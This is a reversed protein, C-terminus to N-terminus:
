DIKYNVNTNNRKKNFLNDCYYLPLAGLVIGLTGTINVLLLTLDGRSVAFSAAPM